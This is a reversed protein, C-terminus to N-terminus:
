YLVHEKQFKFFIDFHIAASSTLLTGISLHLMLATNMFNGM